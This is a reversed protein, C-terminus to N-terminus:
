KMVHDTMPAGIIHFQFDLGSKASFEALKLFELIGKSALLNSNWVILNKKKQLLFSPPQFFNEVVIINKIGLSEFEDLLHSSPIILIINRYIIRVIHGIFISRMLHPLDSGHSHCILKKKFLLAILLIPLDRIFGFKSRSIVCYVKEYCFQLYCAKLWLLFVSFVGWLGPMYLLEIVQGRSLTNNVIRRTVINQGNEESYDCSWILIKKNMKLLKKVM